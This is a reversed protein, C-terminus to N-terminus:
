KCAALPPHRIRADREAVGSSRVVFYLFQMFTHLAKERLDILLISAVTELTPAKKGV